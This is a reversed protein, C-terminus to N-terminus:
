TAMTHQLPARGSDPNGVGGTITTGDIVLSERPVGVQKPRALSKLKPAESQREIFGLLAFEVTCGERAGTAVGEVQPHDPVASWEESEALLNKAARAKRQWHEDM